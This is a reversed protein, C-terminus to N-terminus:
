GTRGMRVIANVQEHWAEMLALRQEIARDVRALEPPKPLLAMAGERLCATLVELSVHSTIVICRTLEGRERLRRMLELGDLDPMQLDTLLLHGTSRDIVELAERGNAAETCRYGKNQLHRM